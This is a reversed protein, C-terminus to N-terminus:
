PLLYQYHRLFARGVRSASWYSYHEPKYLDRFRLQLAEDEKDYSFNPATIRELQEIALDRIEEPSNNVLEIGSTKFESSARFNSMPSNLIEKFSLLRGSSIDKYMKPIGIDKMGGPFVAGLPAMNASAVPVGFISSMYFAGSATGLFFRCNAAIYLDLWDCRIPHHAYDILNKIKPTPGMTPDGMVICIGGLAIIYEITLLYEDISSNRFSHLHEDHTSYGGGRCHICVFWDDSSVGLENLANQGRYVDRSLIKFFPPRGGWLAQIKFLEPVNNIAICYRSVDIRTLPNWLFHRFLRVLMPSTIVTLYQRWYQVATNNSVVKNPALMIIRRKPILELGEERLYCEPEALLHGIRRVQFTPFRFNLLRLILAPILYIVIVIVRRIKWIFVKLGGKNIQAVQDRIFLTVNMKPKETLGLRTPQRHTQTPKVFRCTLAQM